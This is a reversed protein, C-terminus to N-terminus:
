SAEKDFFHIFKRIYDCGLDASLINNWFTFGKRQSILVIIRNRDSTGFPFSSNSWKNKRQGFDYLIILVNKSKLTWQMPIYYVKHFMQTQKWISLITVIFSRDNTRVHFWNNSFCYKCLSITNRKRQENATRILSVVTNWNRNRNWPKNCSRKTFCHKNRLLHGSM